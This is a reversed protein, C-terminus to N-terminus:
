ATRNRRHFERAIKELRSDLREQLKNDCPYSQCCVDSDYDECVKCPKRNNDKDRILQEELTVDLLNDDINKRERCAWCIHYVPYTEPSRTFWALLGNPPQAM